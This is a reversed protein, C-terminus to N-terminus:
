DDEIVDDDVILSKKRKEASEKVLEEMNQGSVGLNLGAQFVVDYSIEGKQACELYKKVMQNIENM